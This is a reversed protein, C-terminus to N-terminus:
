ATASPSEPDDGEPPRVRCTRELLLGAVTLVLAAVVAAAAVVARDRRAVVDLGPLLVLVFGAYLGGLLAGVHSSAKGLAAMRAVGIPHPPRAGHTGHLRRRLAVTSLLVAAALLALGLPGGWPLTPLVTGRNEAIRLVGWCVATAGVLLAALTSLRTPRV